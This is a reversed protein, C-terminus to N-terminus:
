FETVWAKAHELVAVVDLDRSKILVTRFDRRDNPSEFEFVVILFLRSLLGPEKAILPPESIGVPDYRCSIATTYPM